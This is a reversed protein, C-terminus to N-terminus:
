AYLRSDIICCFASLRTNMRDFETWDGADRKSSMLNALHQVVANRLATLECETKGDLELAESAEAIDSKTVIMRDFEASEIYDLQKRTLEAFAAKMKKGEERPSEGAATPM